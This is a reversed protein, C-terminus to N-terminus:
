TAITVFPSLTAAGKKPTLAANWWPAGANRLWFKFVREHELFRVHISEARETTQYTGELYQSWAGLLLDVKTGKTEAFETFFVPRGLLMDPVDEGRAPNFLFVDGNTGTIHAKALDEYTDHNALWIAESYRWCRRRATLIDAGKISGGTTRAVSM